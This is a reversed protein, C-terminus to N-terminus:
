IPRDANTAFMAVLKVAHAECYTRGLFIAPHNECRRHDAVTVQEGCMPCAADRRTPRQTAKKARAPVPKAPVVPPKSARPRRKEGPARSPQATRRNTNARARDLSSQLLDLLEARKARDLRGLLADLAVYPDRELDTSGLRKLIDRVVAAAFHKQVFRGLATTMVVPARAHARTGTVITPGMNPEVELERKTDSSQAVSSGNLFANFLNGADSYYSPYDGYAGTTSTM